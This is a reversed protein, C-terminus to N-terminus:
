LLMIAMREFFNKVGRQPILNCFKLSSVQSTRDASCKLLLNSKFEQTFCQWFERKISDCDEGTACCAKYSRRESDCRVSAKGIAPGWYSVWFINWSGSSHNIANQLQDESMIRFFIV